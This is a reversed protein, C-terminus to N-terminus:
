FFSSIFAFPMGLIEAATSLIDTSSSEEPADMYSPQASAPALKVTVGDRVFRDAAPPQNITTRPQSTMYQPTMPYYKAAVGPNPMAACDRDVPCARNVHAGAPRSWPNQNQTIPRVKQIPKQSIAFQGQDPPAVRKVSPTSKKDVKKETTAKKEILPKKGAPQRQIEVAGEPKAPPPTLVLDKELDAELDVSDEDKAEAVKGYSGEPKASLRPPPAMAGKRREKFAVAPSPKVQPANKTSVQEPLLSDADLEMDSATRLNSTFEAKVVSGPKIFQPSAPGAVGANALVEFNGACVWSAAMFVIVATIAYVKGM